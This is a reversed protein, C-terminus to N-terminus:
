KIEEVTNVEGIGEEKGGVDGEVVISLSILIITVVIPTHKSHLKSSSILSTKTGRRYADGILWMNLM